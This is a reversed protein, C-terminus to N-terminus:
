PTFKLCAESLREGFGRQELVLAAYGEKVIQKAFDRDGGSILEEDGEYIARGMSIHMGTSHGQLCIVAPCPKKVSKPIWLHCPVDVDEESAFIIRREIFDGRDEEWEVRPNLETKEPMDGLLETLKNKVEERWKNYDCNKDYALEPKIGAIVRKHCADVGYTM